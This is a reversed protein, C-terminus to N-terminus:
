ARIFYLLDLLTCETCLRWTRAFRVDWSAIRKIVKLDFKKQTTATQRHVLLLCVCLSFIDPLFVKPSPHYFALDPVSYPHEWSKCLSLDTETLTKEVTRYCTMKLSKELISDSPCWAVKVAMGHLFDIPHIKRFFWHNSANLQVHLSLTWTCFIWQLLEPVYVICFHLLKFCSSFDQPFSHAPKQEEVAPAIPLLLNM